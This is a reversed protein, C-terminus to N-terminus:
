STFRRNSRSGWKKKCKLLVENCVKKANDDSMFSNLYCPIANNWSENDFENRKCLTECISSVYQCVQVVSKVNEEIRDIEEDLM